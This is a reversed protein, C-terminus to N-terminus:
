PPWSSLPAKARWDFLEDASELIPYAFPPGCLALTGPVRAGDGIQPQERSRTSGGPGVPRDRHAAQAKGRACPRRFALAAEVRLPAPAECVGIGAAPGLDCLHANVALCGAALPDIDNAGHSILRGPSPSM